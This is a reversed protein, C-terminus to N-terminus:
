SKDVVLNNTVEFVGPVSRAQTYAITKDMERDVFGELTVRGNRVIIHIPPYAGLAYREMADHRYIARYTALRIRDDGPSTPLVDIQNDVSEVGEIDKTVREASEKLSGTRVSGLLTVEGKPGVRFALHDFVGYYPLLLLEHRIERELRQRRREADNMQAAVTTSALVLVALASLLRRNGRM